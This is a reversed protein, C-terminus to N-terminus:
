IICDLGLRYRTSVVFESGTREVEYSWTSDGPRPCRECKHTRGSRPLPMLDERIGGEREGM